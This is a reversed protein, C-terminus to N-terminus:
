QNLRAALVTYLVVGAVLLTIGLVLGFDSLGEEGLVEKARRGLVLYLLGVGVFFPCLIVAKAFFHLYQGAPTGDSEGGPRHSAAALLLHACVWGALLGLGILSLGGLRERM